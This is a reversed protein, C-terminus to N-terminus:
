TEAEICCIHQWMSHQLQKCFWLKVAGIMLIMKDNGYDNDRQYILIDMIRAFFLCQLCSSHCRKHQGYSPSVVLSCDYLM